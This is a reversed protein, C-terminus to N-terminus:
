TELHHLSPLISMKYYIDLYTFSFIKLVGEEEMTKIFLINLPPCTSEKIVDLPLMIGIMFRDQIKYFLTFGFSCQPLQHVSVGVYAQVRITSVSGETSM